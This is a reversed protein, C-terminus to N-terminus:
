CKEVVVFQCQRLQELLLTAHEESIAPFTILYQHATVVVNFVEGEGFVSPAPEIRFDLNELINM